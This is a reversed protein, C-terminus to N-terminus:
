LKIDCFSKQIRRIRADWETREPGSIGWRQRKHVPLSPRNWLQFNIDVMEQRRGLLSSQIGEHQFITPRSVYRKFQLNIENFHLYLVDNPQESYFLTLFKALKAVDPSRYFKGIFGIESFELCVWEPVKGMFRRIATVYGPVTIVDDELQLYYESIRESYTILFAFDLNQKSRWRVRSVSHNYTMELYDPPTPYLTPYFSDPAEITQLLGSQFHKRYKHLLQANIAERSTIERDALLVVITVSQRQNVDANNILSDLTLQIYQTGNPRSATPIGITM